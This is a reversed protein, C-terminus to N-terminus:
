QTQVVSHTISPTVVFCVTASGGSLIFFDPV